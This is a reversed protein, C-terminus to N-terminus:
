VKKFLLSKALFRSEYHSGTKWALGSFIYKLYRFSSYGEKFYQQVISNQLILTLYKDFQQRLSREEFHGISRNREIIKNTFSKRQKYDQESVIEKDRFQGMYYEKEENTFDPSLWDLMYLRVEAVKSEQEQRRSSCIQSAHMRYRFLTDPINHLQTVRLCDAWFRYDEAPFADARYRLGHQRVVSMRVTPVIITCEFLMNAAIDDHQEPFRILSQSTGFRQGGGGCVGVEPHAELYEVERQLWQPLAIDDGDMRAFYETDILDLGRNLNEALGVNDPFSAIRVRPDDIARVRALTDDTSADDVILLEFDRYTQDLVSRIAEEVWPAVNYTPMLVTVKPM